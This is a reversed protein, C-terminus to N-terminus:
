SESSASASTGKGQPNEEAQQRAHGRAHRNWDVLHELHAIAEDLLALENRLELIMRELEM